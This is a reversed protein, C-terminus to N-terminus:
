MFAASLQQIVTYDFKGMKNLYGQPQSIIFSTCKLAYQFSDKSLNLGKSLNALENPRIRTKFDVEELIVTTGDESMIPEALKYKIKEGSLTLLGEMTARLLPVHDEKIDEDQLPTGVIHRNLFDRLEPLAVEETIATTTKKM